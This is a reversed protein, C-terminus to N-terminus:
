PKLVYGDEKMMSCRKGVDHLKVAVFLAYVENVILVDTRGKLYLKLADSPPFLVM